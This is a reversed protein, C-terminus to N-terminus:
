GVKKGMVLVNGRGQAPKRLQWRDMVSDILNLGLGGPRVEDLDRPKLCTRDVPAAYDRLQIELEHAKLSVKLEIKGDPDGHYAHRIINACAEDVVLILLQILKEDIDARSLADTLAARVLRLNEPEATFGLELLRSERLRLRDEILLITTDDALSLRRL